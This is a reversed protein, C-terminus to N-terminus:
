VGEMDEIVVTTAYIDQMRNNARMKQAQDKKLEMGRPRTDVPESFLLSAFGFQCFIRRVCSFDFIDVIDFKEM